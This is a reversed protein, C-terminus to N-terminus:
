RSRAGRRLVDCRFIVRIPMPAPEGRQRAVARDAVRSAKAQTTSWPGLMTRSAATCIGSTATAPSSARARLRGARAVGVAARRRDAPGAAPPHAAAAPPDRRARGAGLAVGPALAAAGAPGGAAAPLRDRAARQPQARPAGRPAAAGADAAAVAPGAPRLRRGARRVADARLARWETVCAFLEDAEIEDPEVCIARASCSPPSAIASAARQRRGRRRAGAAPGAVTRQLGSARARARGADADFMVRRRRPDRRWGCACTSGRPSISTSTSCTDPVLQSRTEPPRERPRGGIASRAGRDADDSETERRRSTMTAVSGRAIAHRGLRTRGLMRGRPGAGAFPTRRPGSSVTIEIVTVRM